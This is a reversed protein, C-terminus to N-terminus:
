INNGPHRVVLPGWRKQQSSSKEPASNPLFAEITNVGGVLQMKEELLDNHQDNINSLEAELESTRKKAEILDKESPIGLEKKVTMIRQPFEKQLEYNSALLDRVEQLKKEIRSKANSVSTSFVTREAIKVVGEGLVLGGFIVVLITTISLNSAFPTVAMMCCGPVTIRIMNILRFMLDPDNYAEKRVRKVGCSIEFNLGFLKEQLEKEEEELALIKEKVDSEEKKIRVIHPDMKAAEIKTEIKTIIEGQNVLLKELRKKKAKTNELDKNVSVLRKKKSSMVTELRKLSVSSRTESM